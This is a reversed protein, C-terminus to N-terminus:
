NKEMFAAIDDSIDDDESEYDKQTDNSHSSKTLRQYSTRSKTQDHIGNQNESVRSDLIKVARVIQDVQTKTDPDIYPIITALQEQVESLDSELKSIKNQFYIATGAVGALASYAAINRLDKYSESNEM